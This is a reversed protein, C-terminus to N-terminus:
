YFYKEWAWLILKLMFFHSIYNTIFFYNVTLRLSIVFHWRMSVRTNQFSIFQILTSGDWLIILFSYIQKEPDCYKLVCIWMFAICVCRNRSSSSHWLWWQSVTVPISAIFHSSTLNEPQKILDCITGTDQRNKWIDKKSFGRGKRKKSLIVQIM